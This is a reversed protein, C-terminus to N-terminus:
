SPKTEKRCFIPYVALSGSMLFVYVLDLLHLWRREQLLLWIDNNINGFCPVGSENIWPHHRLSEGHTLNFFSINSKGAGACRIVIRFQGVEHFSRHNKQPYSIGVVPQTFLTIDPYHYWVRRIWPWLLGDLRQARNPSLQREYHSRGVEQEDGQSLMCLDDHPSPEIRAWSCLCADLTQEATENWENGMLNFLLYLHLSKYGRHEMIWMGTIPDAIARYTPNSPFLAANMRSPIKIGYVQGISHHATESVPLDRNHAIIHLRGDEAPQFGITNGVHLVIDRCIRKGWSELFTLLSNHAPCGDFIITPGPISEPVIRIMMPKLLHPILDRCGSHEPGLEGIWLNKRTYRLRRGWFWEGNGWPFNGGFFVHVNGDNIPFHDGYPKHHLITIFPFQQNNFWQAVCMLYHYWAPSTEPQTDILTRVTRENLLSDRMGITILQTDWCSTQNTRAADEPIGLLQLTQPLHKTPLLLGSREDIPYIGVPITSHALVDPLTDVNMLSWPAQM